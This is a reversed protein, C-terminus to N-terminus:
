PRMKVKGAGIRYEPHFTIKGRKLVEKMMREAFNLCAEKDKFETRKGSLISSWKAACLRLDDGLQVDNIKGPDYGELEFLFRELKKTALIEGESACFINEMM